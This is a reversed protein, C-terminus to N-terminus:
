VVIWSSDITDFSVGSIFRGEDSKKNDVIMSEIGMAKVHIMFGSQMDFYEKRLHEPLVIYLRKRLINKIKEDYPALLFLDIDKDNRLNKLLEQSFEVTDGYKSIINMAVEDILHEAVKRLSSFKKIISQSIELAEIHFVAYSGDEEDTDYYIINNKM